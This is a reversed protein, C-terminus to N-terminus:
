LKNEFNLDYKRVFNNKFEEETYTFVEKFYLKKFKDLGFRIYNEKATTEAFHKGIGIISPPPDQIQENDFTNKKENYVLIYTLNQRTFSIGKCIIDTLILLSDFNKQRIDFIDKGEVKGNKFEIFYYNNNNIFLADNSKPPEKLCLDKCYEDKVADFNIVELTSQTMFENNAPDKSAEKLTCKYEQLINNIM